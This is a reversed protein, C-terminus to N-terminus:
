TAEELAKRVASKLEAMKFPKRLYSSCGKEFAEAFSSWDGFATMVIVPIEAHSGKVMTLLELGGMEPMKLDAIVLDCAERDIHLAAAAGNEVQIVEYGEASLERTLLARMESDDEAVLIRLKLSHLGAAIM